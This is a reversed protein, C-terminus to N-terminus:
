LFLLLLLLLAVGICAPAHIGEAGLQVLAHRCQLGVEIRLHHTSNNKRLECSGRLHEGEVLM